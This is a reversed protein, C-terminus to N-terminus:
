NEGPQVPSPMLQSTSGAQWNYNRGSIRSHMTTKDGCRATPAAQPLLYADDDRVNKIPEREGGGGGM